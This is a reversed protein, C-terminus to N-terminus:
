SIYGLGQLRKKVEENSDGNEEIKSLEKEIAHQIFEEVESYGCVEAYAKAKDFIFRDIKVKKFAM